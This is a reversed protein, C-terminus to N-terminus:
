IRARPFRFHFVTGGHDRSDRPRPDLEERLPSYAEIVGGAEEVARRAVALGIGSGPAGSVVAARGRIGHEWIDDLEHVGVGPGTDWVHVEIADGEFGLALGVHGGRATYQMANDLVNYVAERVDREVARVPPTDDDIDVHFHLGKEEALVRASSAIPELLDSM